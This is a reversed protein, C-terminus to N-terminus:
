AYMGKPYQFKENEPHFRANMRIELRFVDKARNSEQANSRKRTVGIAVIM